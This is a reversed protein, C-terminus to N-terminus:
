LEFRTHRGKPTAVGKLLTKKSTPSHEGKGDEGFRIHAGLPLPQGRLTAKKSTEAIAIKTTMAAILM